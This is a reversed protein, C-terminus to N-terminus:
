HQLRYVRFVTLPRDFITVSKSHLILAPETSMKCSSTYLLLNGQQTRKTKDHFVFSFGLVSLNLLAILKPLSVMFYMLRLSANAPVAAITSKPLNVSVLLLLSLLKNVFRALEGRGGETGGLLSSVEM